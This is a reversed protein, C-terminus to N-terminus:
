VAHGPGTNHDAVDGLLRAAAPKAAIASSADSDTAPKAAIASSAESDTAAAPAAGSSLPPTSFATCADSWPRFVVVVIGAAAVAFCPWV